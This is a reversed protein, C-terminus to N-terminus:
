WVSVWYDSASAIIETIPFFIVLIAIMFWHAGAKFYALSVSEKFKGKSSEELQVDNNEHKDSKETEANSIASVVSMSRKTKPKEIPQEISGM